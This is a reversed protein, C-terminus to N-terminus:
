LKFDSPSGITETPAPLGGSQIPPSGAAAQKIPESSSGSSSGSSPKDVSFDKSGGGGFSNGSSKYSPSDFDDSSDSFEDDPSPTGEASDDSEFLGEEDTMPSIFRNLLNKLKEKNVKVGAVESASITEIISFINGMIDTSAAMFEVVDLQDMNVLSKFKVKINERKVNLGKLSLHQTVIDRIGERVGEQITMLKRSYRSSVKLVELKSATGEAGAVLNYSPMGVDLAIGLRLRDEAEDMSPDAAAGLEVPAVTGKGDSFSPFVRVRGVMEFIDTFTFAGPDTANPTTPAQLDQEYKRTLELLDDTSASAPVGVSIILPTLLNKLTKAVAGMEYLQLRKLKSIAQYIVSRGVYIYEPVDVLGANVDLKSPALKLRIKRASLCFHGMEQPSVVVLQHGRRELFFKKRAGEYIALVADPPVDDKIAIVGRGPEAVIRFPYEGYLIFEELSNKVFGLLDLRTVLSQVEFDIKESLEDDVGSNYSVTFVEPDNSSSFGDDIMVDLIVQVADLNRMSEYTKILEFRTNLTPLFAQVIEQLQMRSFISNSENRKFLRDTLLGEFLLSNPGVTRVDFRSEVDLLMESLNGQVM